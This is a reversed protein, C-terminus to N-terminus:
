VEGQPRVTILTHDIQTFKNLPVSSRHKWAEYKNTVIVGDDEAALLQAQDLYGLFELASSVYSFPFMDPGRPPEEIVVINGKYVLSKRELIDEVINAILNLSYYYEELLVKITNRAMCDLITGLSLEALIALSAAIERLDIRRGQVKVMPLYSVLSNSAVIKKAKKNINKLVEEVLRKGEESTIETLSKGSSIGTNELMKLVDGSRVGTINPLYPFSTAYLSDAVNYGESAFFALFKGWLEVSQSSHENFKDLNSPDRFLKDGSITSAALLSRHVEGLISIGEVLVLMSASVPIGPKAVLVEGNIRLTISSPEPKTKNFGVMLHPVNDKLHPSNYSLEIQSEISKEAM